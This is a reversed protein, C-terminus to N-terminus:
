ENILQHSSAKPANRVAILVIAIAVAVLAGANLGIRRGSVM